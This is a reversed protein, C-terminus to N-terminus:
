RCKKIKYREIRLLAPKSQLTCSECSQASSPRQARVAPSSSPLDELQKKSGLTSRSQTKSASGPRSSPRSRRKKDANSPQPQGARSKGGEEESSDRLAVPHKPPPPVGWSRGTASLPHYRGAPVKEPRLSTQAKKM